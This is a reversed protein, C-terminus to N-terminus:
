KQNLLWKWVPLINITFDNTKIVDEQNYTLLKGETLKFETLAEKLGEIEREQNGSNLEYCVQYAESIQNKVKVVFDCERKNKYYFVQQEKRRLAIFVINELIRGFDSSFSASNANILGSDIAYIKKPNIIQKKLSFDFKPVTFLLYSDELFSLYSIVTNVSGLNFIKKLGNFSFEKGVNSLLYLGIDRIERINRIGHRMVIDRAIIDNFLEQLIKINNDALYEPFGGNELYKAFSGVGPKLKSFQLMENYSFPFIEYRIHRGTLRTGLEKSLLSANSGTIFVKKKKDLLDRAFKEWQEINQIEDFFFYDSTKKEEAFISELKEFDSIEFSAAKLDEFNFYHCQKVQNMLYLLITSKGCRRIGSIIIAHSSIMDIESTKERQIYQKDLSLNGKQSEVIKKLEDKLIM